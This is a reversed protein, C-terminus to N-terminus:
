SFYFIITAANIAAIASPFWNSKVWHGVAGAFSSGGLRLLIAGYLGLHVAIPNLEWEQFSWGNYWAFGADFLTVAWVFGWLIGKMTAEEIDFASGHCALGKEPSAKV